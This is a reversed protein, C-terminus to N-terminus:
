IIPIVVESQLQISAKMLLLYQVSTFWLGKESVIANCLQLTSFCNANLFQFNIKLLSSNGFISDTYLGLFLSNSDRYLYSFILYSLKVLVFLFIFRTVKCIVGEGGQGTSAISYLSM